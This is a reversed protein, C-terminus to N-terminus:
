ILYLDIGTTRLRRWRWFGTTDVAIRTRRDVALKALPEQL